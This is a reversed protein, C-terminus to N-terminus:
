ALGWSKHAQVGLRWDPRRAVWEACAAVREATHPWMPTVYKMGFRSLDLKEFEALALGNLGPVVNLQDGSRQVWSADVRHPSVSVFDAGGPPYIRGFGLRVPAVGATAVAVRFNYRRLETILTPLDHATPEGGTLWVWRVADGVAVARRAIERAGVREAVSYDTDCGPCGVSCGALRVFVMPAGLMVGEGQVTRFVGQPALPYTM